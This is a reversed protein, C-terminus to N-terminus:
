GDLRGREWAAWARLTTPDTLHEGLFERLLRQHARVELGSLAIPRDALWDRLAGRATAPLGRTVGALAACRDCLVGGSRVGIRADVDPAMPQRCSACEDLTPAFGLEAALRWLAGLAATASAGPQADASAIADVGGVITDYASPAAEDHVIRLVCEAFAAAAAFRGLDAAIAPRVRVVDFGTLAQLDRGPRLQLQAEGEAFLDLGSGFRKRSSRAGRAVVSLVGAERTALRVIRSSELYDVAHLVIADTVVLSM